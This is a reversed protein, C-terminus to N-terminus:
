IHCDIVHEGIAHHHRFSFPLICMASAGKL